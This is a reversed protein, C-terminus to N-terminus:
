LFSPQRLCVIARSFTHLQTTPMAQDSLQKPM